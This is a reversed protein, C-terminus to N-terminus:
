GIDSTRPPDPDPPLTQGDLFPVAANVEAPKEGDPVVSALPLPAILPAACVNGCAMAKMGGDPQDPCGQCDGHEMDSMIMDPMTAMRAAM